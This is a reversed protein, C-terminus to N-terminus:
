SQVEDIAEITEVAQGSDYAYEEIDEEEEFYRSLADAESEAEIEWVRTHLTTREIRYTTM